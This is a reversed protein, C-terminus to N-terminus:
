EQYGAGNLLNLLVSIQYLYAANGAGNYRRVAYAWDCLFDARDPVGTYNIVPHSSDPQYGHAAGPFYPQGQAISIRRVKAACERCVRMWRQPDSAPYRCQRAFGLAPHEKLQEPEGHVGKWKEALVRRTRLINAEPDSLERLEAATPPHHFLTYQGIGYGRSTIRAPERGDGRDLGITVFGDNPNYHRFQSEQKLIALVFPMPADMGAMAAAARVARANEADANASQPLKPFRDDSIMDAICAALPQDLEGTITAVRARNYGTIKVPAFGDDHSAVPAGNNHILDYQLAKIAKETAAGFEGNIGRALYGLRRLDRQLDTVLDRPNAGGAKM